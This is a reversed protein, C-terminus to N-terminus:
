HATPQQRELFGAANQMAALADPLRDSGADQAAYDRLLTMVARLHERCDDFDKEWAIRQLDFQVQLRDVKQQLEACRAQLAEDPTPTAEARAARRLLEKLGELMHHVCPQAM